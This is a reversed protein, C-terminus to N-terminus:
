QLNTTGYIGSITATYAPDSTKIKIDLTDGSLALRYIKFDIVESIYKTQSSAPISASKLLYSQAGTNYYIEVTAGSTAAAAAEAFISFEGELELPLSATEENPPIPLTALTTITAPPVAIAGSDFAQLFSSCDIM